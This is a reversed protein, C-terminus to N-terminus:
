SRTRTTSIPTRQICLSNLRFACSRRKQHCKCRSHSNSLLPLERNTTNTTLTVASPAAPNSQTRDTAAMRTSWLPRRSTGSNPLTTTSMTRTKDPTLQAITSAVIIIKTMHPMGKCRLTTKLEQIHTMIMDQTTHYAYTQM